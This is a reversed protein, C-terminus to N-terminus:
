RRKTTLHYKNCHVCRYATFGREFKNQAGPTIIKHGSIIAKKRTDYCVKGNEKCKLKYPSGMVKEIFLKKPIRRRKSQKRKGGTETQMRPSCRRKSNRM